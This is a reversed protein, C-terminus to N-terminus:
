LHDLAEYPKRSFVEDASQKQAKIRSPDYQVNPEVTYHYMLGDYVNPLYVIHKDSALELIPTMLAVDTAQRFWEGEKDRFDKKSIHDFLPKRFTRIHAAYWRARYNNDKYTGWDARTNGGGRQMGGYAVWVNPDHYVLSLISLVHEHYLADDGDLLVVVEDDEVQSILDHRMKCAYVQEKTKLSTYNIGSEHMISTAMEFSGDTSADDGFIIRFHSRPYKQQLVSQLTAQLYKLTNRGNIIVAIRQVNGGTEPWFHREPNQYWARMKDFNLKHAHLHEPHLTSDDGTCMIWPITSTFAFLSDFIVSDSTCSKGGTGGERLWNWTQSEECYYSEMMKTMGKRNIAYAYTGYNHLRWPVYLICEKTNKQLNQDLLPGQHGLQIIEVESPLNQLYAKLPFNWSSPDFEIDDETIIVWEHKAHYAKKIASLHNVTLAVIKWDINHKEIHNITALPINKKIEDIQKTGDLASFRQAKKTLKLREFLSEMNKRRVESREMNIWLVPPFAALSPLSDKMLPFVDSSRQHSM